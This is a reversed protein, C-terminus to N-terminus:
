PMRKRPTYLALVSLIRRNFCTSFSNECM